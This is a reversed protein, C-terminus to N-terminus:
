VLDNWILHHDQLPMDIESILNISNRLIRRYNKKKKKELLTLINHKICYIM